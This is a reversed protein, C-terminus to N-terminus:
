TQAGAALRTAQGDRRRVPSAARVARLRNIFGTGKPNIELRAAEGISRVRLALTDDRYVHLQRSPDFGAEILQRCLALVPAHARAVIGDDTICTDSGKLEARIPPLTPALM